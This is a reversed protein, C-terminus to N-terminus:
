FCGILVHKDIVVEQLEWICGCWHEETNGFWIKRSFHLTTLVSLTLICDLQSSFVPGSMRSRHILCFQHQFRNIRFLALRVLKKVQFIKGLFKSMADVVTGKRRTVRLMWQDSFLRVMSWMSFNPCRLFSRIDNPGVFDIWRYDRKWMYREIRHIGVVRARHIDDFLLVPARVCLVSPNRNFAHLFNRGSALTQCCKSEDIM